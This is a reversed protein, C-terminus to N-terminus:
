GGFLKAFFSKKKPPDEVTPLMDTSHKDEGREVLAAGRKGSMDGPTQPEPDWNASKRSANDGAGVDVPTMYVTSPKNRRTTEGSVDVPQMHASNRCSLKAKLQLVEVELAIRKKNSEELKLELGRYYDMGPRFRRLLDDGLNKYLHNVVIDFEIREREEM